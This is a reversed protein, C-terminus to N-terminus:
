LSSHKSQFWHFELCVGLKQNGRPNPGNRPMAPRYLCGIRYPLSDAWLLLTALAGGWKSVVHKSIWCMLSSSFTSMLPVLSFDATPSEASGFCYAPRRSKRSWRCNAMRRIKVLRLSKSLRLSKVMRRIKVPQLSKVMQRIKVPWLSKVMRRIKVPRLSKVM